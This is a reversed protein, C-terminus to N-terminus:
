SIKCILEGGVHKNKAQEGTMLGQSTSLIALGFGSLVVPVSSAKVYFRRSPKSVRIAQRLVPQKAQYKLRLFLKKEAPKQGKVQYDKLYGEQVLIKIIAEKQNSFPMQVTKKGVQYGNKIISLMDSIPDMLM